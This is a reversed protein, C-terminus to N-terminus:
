QQRWHGDTVNWVALSITLNREGNLLGMVRIKQNRAGIGLELPFGKLLPTLYM